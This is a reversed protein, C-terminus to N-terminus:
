CERTECMYCRAAKKGAPAVRQGPYLSDDVGPVGDMIRIMLDALEETHINAVVDSVDAGLADCSEYREGEKNSLTHQLLSYLEDRLGELNERVEPNPNNVHVQQDIAAYLTNVLEKEFRDPTILGSKKRDNVEKRNHEYPAPGLLMQYLTCGLSQIDM